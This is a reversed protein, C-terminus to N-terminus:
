QTNASPLKTDFKASCLGWLPFQSSFGVLKLHFNLSPPSIHFQFHDLRVRSSGCLSVMFKTSIYIHLSGECFFSAERLESYRCLFPCKDHFVALLPGGYNTSHLTNPGPAPDPGSVSGAGRVSSPPAPHPSQVTSLLMRCVSIPEDM